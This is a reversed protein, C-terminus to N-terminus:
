GWADPFEGTMFLRNFLRNLIHVIIDIGYIFCEPIISDEGGSKDRRMSKVAKLIEEDTIENNFIANELEDFEVDENLMENINSGDETEFNVNFLQEFHTKWQEPSITNNVRTGQSCMTNLMKWFSRPTHYNEILDNLKNNNYTDRRTVFKKFSVVHM